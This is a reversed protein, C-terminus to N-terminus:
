VCGMMKKSGCEWPTICISAFAIAIEDGLFKPFAGLFICAQPIPSPHSSVKSLASDPDLSDNESYLRPDGEIFQAWGGPKLVRYVEQVYGPWKTEPIAGLLGRSILVWCRWLM